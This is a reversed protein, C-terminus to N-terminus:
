FDHLFIRVFFVLLTVVHILLLLLLLLTLLLLLLLELFDLLAVEIGFEGFDEEFADDEEEIGVVNFLRELNAVQPVRCTRVLGKPHLQKQLLKTGMAGVEVGM